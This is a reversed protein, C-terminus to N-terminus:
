DLLSTFFFLPRKSISFFAHDHVHPVAVQSDSHAICNNATGEYANRQQARGQVEFDDNKPYTVHLSRNIKSISWDISKEAELWGEDDDFSRWSFLLYLRAVPHSSFYKRRLVVGMKLM